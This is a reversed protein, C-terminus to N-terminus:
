RRRGPVHRGPLLRYWVGRDLDLGLRPARLKTDLIDHHACLNPCESREGEDKKYGVADLADKPTRRSTAPNRFGPSEDSLRICM